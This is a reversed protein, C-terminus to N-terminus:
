FKYVYAINAVVPDIKVTGIGAGNISVDTEIDIYRLDFRLASTDSIAYDVGAHLAYGWSDDLDVNAGSLVGKGTEDFFYTYNVGAGVFPTLRSGTDFHYQISLTPPLHKTTAVKGTGALNIDHEFPWSALLEVGLRDRLFYEFTLTPRANGDVDISGVVTNSSDDPEIWGIGIGLLMDGQSQALAPGGLGAALATSLTLATLTKM